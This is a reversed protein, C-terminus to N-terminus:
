IGTYEKFSEIISYEVEFEIIENIIQRVDSKESEAIDKLILHVAVPILIVEQVYDYDSNGSLQRTSQAETGLVYIPSHKYQNRYLISAIETDLLGKERLFDKKENLSSNYKIKM